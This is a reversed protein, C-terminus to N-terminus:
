ALTLDGNALADRLEQLAGDSDVAMSELWGVVQALSGTVVVGCVEGNQHGDSEVNVPGAETYTQGLQEQLQAEDEALLDYRLKFM